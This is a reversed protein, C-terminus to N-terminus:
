TFQRNIQSADSIEKMKKTADTPFLTTEEIQTSAACLPQFKKSV